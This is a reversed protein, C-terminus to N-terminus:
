CIIQLKRPLIRYDINKFPSPYVEGDNSLLALRSLSISLSKAKFASVKKHGLLAKRLTLSILYLAERKTPMEILLCDFIGDDPRADPNLTLGGFRGTNSVLLVGYTGSFSREDTRINMEWGYSMKRIVKLAAAIYRMSGSLGKMHISEAAINAFLGLSSAMCFYHPGAQGIDVYKTKGNMITRCAQQLQQPIGLSKSFDNSSGSPIIGIRPLQRCGSMLAGNIVENLTGDGGLVIITDAKQTTAKAALDRAHGPHATTFLSFPFKHEHFFIQAQRVRLRSARWHAKENAIIINTRM